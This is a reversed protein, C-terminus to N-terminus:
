YAKAMLVRQKSPKGTLICTGAEPSPGEGELPICRITVKTLEKIKAETEATGDWHCWVFTSKEGAFLKEFESWEDCTVFSADRRETALRLLESQYTVLRERIGEVFEPNPFSLRTM